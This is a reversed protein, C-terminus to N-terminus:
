RRAVRRFRQEEEATDRVFSLVRRRAETNPATGRDTSKWWRELERFLVALKADM